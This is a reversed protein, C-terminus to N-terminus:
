LESVEVDVEVSMITLPEADVSEIEAQITDSSHGELILEVVGTYPETSSWPEWPGDNIRARLARSQHVVVVVKHLRKLEGLASGLAVPIHLPLTKVRSTFNTPSHCFLYVPSDVYGVFTQIEGVTGQLAGNADTNRQGVYTLNGSEMKYVEIPASAPLLDGTVSSADVTLYGSGDAHLNTAHFAENIRESRDGPVYISDLPLVEVKFTGSDQRAIYLDSEHVDIWWVDSALKVWGSIQAFPAETLCYLNREIDIFLLYRHSGYEVSLHKIVKKNDIYETVNDTAYQDPNARQVRILRDDKSVVMTPGLYAAERTGIDSIKIVQAGGPEISFYPYASVIEYEGGDTGMYVSQRSTLWMVRESGYFDPEIEIAGTEVTEYEVPNTEPIAVQETLTFDLMELPISMFVTGWMSDAAILRNQHVTARNKDALETITWSYLNLSFSHGPTSLHITQNTVDETAEAYFTQTKQIPEGAELTGLSTTQEAGTRLNIAVLQRPSDNIYLLWPVESGVEGVRVVVFAPIANDAYLGDANPTIGLGERILITGRRRTIGGDPSIVFGDIEEAGKQQLPLDVRGMIKRSLMGKSFDTLPFRRRAM